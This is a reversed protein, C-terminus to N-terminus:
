EWIPHRVHAADRHAKDVIGVLGGPGVTLRGQVEQELVRGNGQDVGEIVAPQVVKIVLQGALQGGHPPVAGQGGHDIDVPAVLVPGRGVLLLPGDGLFEAVQPTSTMM